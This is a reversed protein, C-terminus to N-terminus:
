QKQLSCHQKYRLAVKNANSAVIVVYLDKVLVYTVITTASLGAENCVSHRKQLSSTNCNTCDIKGHANPAKVIMLPQPGTVWQPLPSATAKCLM